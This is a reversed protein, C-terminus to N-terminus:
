WGWYGTNTTMAGAMGVVPTTYGGLIAWENPDKFMCFPERYLLSIESASLARNYMSVLDVDGTLPYSGGVSDIGIYSNTGNTYVITGTDADVESSAKDDWYYRIAAGDYTVAYQHWKNDNLNGSGVLIGTNNGVGQLYFYMMADAGSQFDIGWFIGKTLASTNKWTLMTPIGSGSTTKCWGICTVATSPFVKHAIEINDGGDFNIASGFKGSVWSPSAAGAGFTGTNGNGSLDFVTTGGNENFSWRGVLGGAPGLSHGKIIPTGLRPKILKRYPYAM